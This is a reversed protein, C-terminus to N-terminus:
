GYLFKREAERFYAQRKTKLYTVYNDFSDKKVERFEYFYKGSMQDFRTLDDGRALIDLPNYFTGHKGPSNGCKIYYKDGSEAACAVRESKADNGDTDYLKM